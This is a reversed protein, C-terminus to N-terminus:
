RGSSGDALVCHARNLAGGGECVCATVCGADNGVQALPPYATLEMNFLREALVLQERTKVAM